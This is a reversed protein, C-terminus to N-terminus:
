NKKSKIIKKKPLKLNDLIKAYSELDKFLINFQIFKHINLICRKYHYKQINSKNINDLLMICHNKTNYYLSDSNPTNSEHSIQKTIGTKCKWERINKGIEIININNENHPDRHIDEPTDQIQNLLASYQEKIKHIVDFIPEKKYIGFPIKLLGELFQRAKSASDDSKSKIERLKVMAKEKITDNVNMLCIQEELPVRNIDFKLLSNINKVANTMAGTLFRQISRPFSEYLQFQEKSCMKTITNTNTNANSKMPLDISLIDYLM